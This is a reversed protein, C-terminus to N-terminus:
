VLRSQPNAVSQNLDVVPLNLCHLVSIYNAEDNRMAIATAIVTKRRQNGRLDTEVMLSMKM